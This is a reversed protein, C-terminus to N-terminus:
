FFLAWAFLAVANLAAAAGIAVRAGLGSFRRWLLACLGLAGAMEIPAVINGYRASDWYSVPSVYVWDSFPWFHPRGDDHHLPLDLAIHLLAGAAFAWLWERRLLLGVGLILAYVPISNDVAFISQWTDSFYREDFITQFDVGLVFREWATLFYLSFDPAMAGVLAATTVARANPRGLAAAAVLLHTPTNM